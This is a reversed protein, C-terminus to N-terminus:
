YNNRIILGVFKNVAKKYRYVYSRTYTRTNIKEVNRAVLADYFANPAFYNSEFESIDEESMRDIVKEAQEVYRTHLDNIIELTKAKFTAKDM